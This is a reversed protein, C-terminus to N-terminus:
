GIANIFLIVILENFPLVNSIIFYCYKLPKVKIMLLFTDLINVARAFTESYCKLKKTLERLLQVAEDRVPPSVYESSLESNSPQLYFKMNINDCCVTFISVLQYSRENAVLKM